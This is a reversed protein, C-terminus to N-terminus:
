ITAVANNVLLFNYVDSARANHPPCMNVSIFYNKISNIQKKTNRSLQIPNSSILKWRNLIEYEVGKRESMLIDYHQIIRILVDYFGVVGRLILCLPQGSKTTAIQPFEKVGISEKTFTSISNYNKEAISSFVRDGHARCNRCSKFYKYVLVLPAIYTDQKSYTFHLCNSLISPQEANIANDLSAFEGKKVDEKITKKRTKSVSPLGADIASEVWADFVAIANILLLEAIYQEEYEWTLEASIRKCNLGHISIGSLMANKIEHELANPHGDLYHTIDYRLKWLGADIAWVMDFTRTIEQFAIHTATFVSNTM